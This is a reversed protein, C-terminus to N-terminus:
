RVSLVSIPTITRAEDCGMKKLIKQIREIGIKFVIYFKPGKHSKAYFIESKNGIKYPHNDYINFNNLKYM